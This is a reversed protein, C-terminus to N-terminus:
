RAVTIAPMKRCHRPASRTAAPWPFRWWERPVDLLDERVGVCVLRQRRQPVGHDAALLIKRDFSYGADAM